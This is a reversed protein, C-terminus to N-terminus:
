FELVESWAEQHRRFRVIVRKAAGPTSIEPSFGVDNFRSREPIGSSTDGFGAEEYAMIASTIRAERAGDWPGERGSLALLHIAHRRDIPHRYKFAVTFLPEIIGPGMTFRSFYARAGDIGDVEARRTPLIAEGDALIQRFLPGHIDYATEYPSIACYLKILASCATMRLKLAHCGETSLPSKRLVALSSLIPDFCELWKQLFAILRSQQDSIATSSPQQRRKIELCEFLFCYSAHALQVLVKHASKLDIFEPLTSPISIPPLRPSHSLAYSSTQLDITRFLLTIADDPVFDSGSISSRPLKSVARRHQLLQAAGALHFLANEERQLFMEVLSLLFCTLIIPISGSPLLPLDRRVVKLAIQYQSAAFAEDGEQPISAQLRHAAGIAALSAIISPNSLCIQPLQYELVEEGGGFHSFSDFKLLPLSFQFCRYQQESQFGESVM